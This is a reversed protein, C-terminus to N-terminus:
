VSNKVDRMCGRILIRCVLLCTKDQRVHQRGTRLRQKNLDPWLINVLFSKHLTEQSSQVSVTFWIKPYCSFYEARNKPQESTRLSKSSHHYLHLSYSDYLLQLKTFILINKSLASLDNINQCLPLAVNDQDVRHLVGRCGGKLELNSLAKWLNKLHLSITGVNWREAFLISHMQVSTVGKYTHWLPCSTSPVVVQTSWKCKSCPLVVRSHKQNLWM